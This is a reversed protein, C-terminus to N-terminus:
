GLSVPYAKDVLAQLDEAYDAWNEGKKRRRPHLEAEYRHKRSAPEFREKLAKILQKILILRTKRQFPASIHSPSLRETESEAM